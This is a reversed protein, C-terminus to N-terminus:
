CQLGLFLRQKQISQEEKDRHWGIMCVNLKQLLAKENSRMTEQDIHDRAIQEPRKSKTASQLTQQTNQIQSYKPQQVAQQPPIPTPQIPEQWAYNPAVAAMPQNFQSHTTASQFVNNRSHAMALRSNIYDKQKEQIQIRQSEIEQKGTQIQQQILDANTQIEMLKLRERSAEGHLLAANRITSEMYSKEEEAVSKEIELQTKLAEVRIKEARLVARDRYLQAMGDQLAQVESQLTFQEVHKEDEYRSKSLLLEQELQRNARELSAVHAAKSALKKREDSLSAMMTRRELEWSDRSHNLETQDNQLKLMLEYKEQQTQEIQASLRMKEKHILSMDQEQKFTTEKLAIEMRHMIELTKSKDNEICQKERQLAELQDNVLCEKEKLANERDTLLTSHDGHIRSQLGGILNSNTELKETLEALQRTNETNSVIKQMEDLHAQKLDCIKREYETCVKELETQSEKKTNEINGKVQSMETKHKDELDQIAEIHKRKIEEVEDVHKTKMEMQLIASHKREEDLQENLQEIKQEAKHLNEMIIELKKPTAKKASLSEVSLNVLSKKKTNELHEQSKLVVTTQLATSQIRPTPTKHSSSVALDLKESEDDDTDSLVALSSLSDSKLTEAIHSTQQEKAPLLFPIHTDIQSYVQPQTWSNSNSDVIPLNQPSQNQEIEVPKSLVKPRDTLFPLSVPTSSLPTPHAIATQTPSAFVSSGKMLGAIMNMPDSMNTNVPASSNPGRRRGGFPKNDLMFSPLGDNDNKSSENSIPKTTPNTAAFSLTPVMESSNKPQLLTIHQSANKDRGLGHLGDSEVKLPVSNNPVFPTFVAKSSRTSAIPSPSKLISTDKEILSSTASASTNIVSDTQAPKLDLKKSKGGGLGLLDLMDDDGIDDMDKKIVAPQNLKQRRGQNRNNAADILSESEATDFISDHQKSKTKNEMLTTTQAPFTLSSQDSSPNLFSKGKTTETDEPNTTGLITSSNWSPTSPKIEVSDKILETRFSSEKIASQAGASGARRGSSASTSNKPKGFLQSDMDDMDQLSSLINNLDDNDNKQSALKNTPVSPHEHLFGGSNNISTPKPMASITMPKVTTRPMSSKSQPIDHTLTHGSPAIDKVSPVTEAVYSPTSPKSRRSTKNKSSDSGLGLIDAFDDELDLDLKGAPKNNSGVPILGGTLASSGSSIWPSGNSEPPFNM